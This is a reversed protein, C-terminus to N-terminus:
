VVAISQGDLGSLEYLLVLIIYARLFAACFMVAHAFAAAKKAVLRYLGNALGCNCGSRRVAYNLRDRDCLYKENNEM